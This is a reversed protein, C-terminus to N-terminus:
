NVVVLLHPAMNLLFQLDGAPLIGSADVKMPKRLIPQIIQCTEGEKTNLFRSLAVLDLDGDKSPEFRVERDYTWAKPSSLIWIAITRDKKQGSKKTQEESIDEGSTTNVKKGKSKPTQNGTKVEEKAKNKGKKKATTHAENLSDKPDVRKSPIGVANGHSPLIARSTSSSAQHQDFAGTSKDHPQDSVQNSPLTAKQLNSEGADANTKTRKSRSSDVGYDNSVEEDRARKSTTAVPGSSSASIMWPTAQGNLWPHKVDNEILLKSPIQPVNSNARPLGRFSANSIGPSFTIPRPDTDRTGEDDVNMKNCDPEMETNSRGAQDSNRPTALKWERLSQLYGARQGKKVVVGTAGMEDCLKKLYPISYKRLTTELQSPASVLLARKAAEYKGADIDIPAM